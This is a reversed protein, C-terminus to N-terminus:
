QGLLNVQTQLSSKTSYSKLLHTNLLITFDGAVFWYYAGLSIWTTKQFKLMKIKIQIRCVTFYYLALIFTFIKNRFVSKYPLFLSFWRKFATQHKIPQKLSRDLPNKKKKLVQNVHISDIIFLLMQCFIFVLLQHM